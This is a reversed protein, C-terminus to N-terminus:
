YQTQAIFVSCPSHDLLSKGVPNSWWRTTFSARKKHGVVILDAEIEIALYCIEAVPEGLRLHAIANIGKLQLQEVGENLITHARETEDDLLQETPSGETLYVGVPL